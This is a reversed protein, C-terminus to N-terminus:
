EDNEGKKEIRNLGAIIGKIVYEELYTPISYAKDVEELIIQAQERKSMQKKGKRNM